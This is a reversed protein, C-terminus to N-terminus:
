IPFVAGTGEGKGGRNQHQPSPSRAFRQSLYAKGLHCWDFLEEVIGSSLPYGMVRGMNKKKFSFFVFCFLHLTLGAASAEAEASSCINETGPAPMLGAVLLMVKLTLPSAIM